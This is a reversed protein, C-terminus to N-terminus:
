FTSTCAYISTGILGKLLIEHKNTEGLSNTVDTQFSIRKGRPSSTKNADVADASGGSLILLIKRIDRNMNELEQQKVDMEDRNDRRSPLLFFINNDM